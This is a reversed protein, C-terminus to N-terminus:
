VTCNHVSAHPKMYAPDFGEGSDTQARTATLVTLLRRLNKFLGPVSFKFSYIEISSRWEDTGVEERRAELIMWLEEKGSVTTRLTVRPLINWNKKAAACNRLFYSKRWNAQCSFDCAARCPATTGYIALNTVNVLNVIIFWEDELKGM